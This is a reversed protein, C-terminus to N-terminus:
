FNNPSHPYMVPIGVKLALEREIVAGRSSAWDHCLWVGDCGMLAVICIRMLQEWSAGEFEPLCGIQRYPNFPECGTARIDQEAREFKIQVDKPDLGSIAGAIYINKKTM